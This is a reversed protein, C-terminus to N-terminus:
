PVDKNPGSGTDRYPAYHTDMSSGNGADVPIADNAAQPQPLTAPAITAFGRPDGAHTAAALRKEAAATRADADALRKELDANQSSQTCGGLGLAPMAAVAMCMAMSSRLVYAKIM